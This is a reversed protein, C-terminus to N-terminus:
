YGRLHLWVKLHIWSDLLCFLLLFCNLFKWRTLKWGVYCARKFRSRRGWLKHVLGKCKLFWFVFVFVFCVSVCHSVFIGNKGFIFSPNRFCFMFSELNWKMWSEWMKEAVLCSGGGREGFFFFSCFNSLIGYSCLNKLSRWKREIRWNPKMSNSDRM